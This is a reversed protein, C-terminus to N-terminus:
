DKPETNLLEEEATNNYHLDELEELTIGADLIFKYKSPKDEYGQTRARFSSYGYDDFTDNNYKHRKWNREKKCLIDYETSENINNGAQFFDLNFQSVRISDIINQRMYAPQNGFVKLRSNKIKIVHEQALKSMCQQDEKTFEPPAPKEKFIDVGLEQAVKLVAAEKEELTDFPWM